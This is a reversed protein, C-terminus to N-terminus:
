DDCLRQLSTRLESDDLSLQALRKVVAQLSESFQRSLM